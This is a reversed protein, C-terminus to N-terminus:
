TRSWGTSNARFGPEDVGGVLARLQRLPEGTTALTKRMWDDDRGCAIAVLHTVVAEAKTSAITLDGIAM